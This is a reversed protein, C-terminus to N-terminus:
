IIHHWYDVFFVFFKYEFGGLKCFILKIILGPQRNNDASRGGCVKEWRDAVGLDYVTNYILAASGFKEMGSGLDRIWV